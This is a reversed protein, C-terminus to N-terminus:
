KCMLKNLLEQADRVKMVKKTEETIDGAIKKLKERAAKTAKAIDGKSVTFKALRANVVDMMFKEEPNLAISAKEMNLAQASDTVNRRRITLLENVAEMDGNKRAIEAFEMLKANRDTVPKTPDLANKLAKDKDAQIEKAAKLSQEKIHKVDYDEGIKYQDPLTENLRKAMQSTGQETKKAKKTVSTQAKKTPAEAKQLKKGLIFESYARKVVDEKGFYKKVRELVTDFHAKLEGTVGSRKKAYGIFSEALWEEVEGYDKVDLGKKQMERKAAILIDVQEDATTMVDLYKHFAEHLYTDAADAEGKVIKIMGARYSGLAKQGEPTLIQETIKINEDGFLRKNLEIIQKEQKDTLKIGISAFDDKVRYKTRGANYDMREKQAQKILSDHQKMHRKWARSGEPHRSALKLQLRASEILQQGKATPEHFKTTGKAKVYNLAEERDLAVQKTKEYRKIMAVAKKEPVGSETAIRKVIVDYLERQKSTKPITGNLIHKQVKDFDKRSRLSEPVWKPFTSKEGTVQMIDGVGETEERYLRKGAKATDLEMFVNAAKENNFFDNIEKDTTQVTEKEYRDKALTDLEDQTPEVEEVKKVPAEEKVPEAKVTPEETKITPEEKTTFAEDIIDDVDDGIAPKGTEARRTIIEGSIDDLAKGEGQLEKVLAKEEDDLKGISKEITETFRNARGRQMIAGVGKGVGRLALSGAGGYKLDTQIEEWTRGRLGELVAIDVLDKSTEYMLEGGVKVVKPTVGLVKAVKPIDRIAQEIKGTKGLRTIPIFWSGIETVEGANKQMINKYKPKYNLIGNEDMFADVAKLYEPTNRDVLEAVQQGGVSKLIKRYSSYGTIPTMGIAFKATGSALEGINKVAGKQTEITAKLRGEDKAYQDLEQQREQLMQMGGEAMRGVTPVFGQEKAQMEGAQRYASYLQSEDELPQLKNGRGVLGRAFEGVAGKISSQVEQERQQFAQMAEQERQQREQLKRQEEEEQRKRMEEVLSAGQEQRFREAFASSRSPLSGSQKYEQSFREAFTVM